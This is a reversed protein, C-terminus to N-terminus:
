CKKKCLKKWIKWKKKYIMQIIGLRYLQRIIKNNNLFVKLLSIKPINKTPIKIKINFVLNSFKKYIKNYNTNNFKYSNLNVVVAIKQVPILM